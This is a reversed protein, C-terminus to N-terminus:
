KKVALKILAIFNNRCGFFMIPLAFFISVLFTINLIFFFPKSMEEYVFSELFNAQVGEGVLNYGLIGVILYSFACFFGGTFSAQMMRKDGPNKMGKFVPFFNNQFSISFIINPVAAAAGYWDDPFMRMNGVPPAGIPDDTSCLIYYVIFTLM